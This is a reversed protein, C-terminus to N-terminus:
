APAATDNIMKAVGRGSDGSAHPSSIDDSGRSGRPINIAGASSSTWGNPLARSHNSSILPLRHLNTCGVRSNNGRNNSSSRYTIGKNNTVRNHAM